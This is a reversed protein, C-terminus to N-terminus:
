TGEPPLLAAIRAILNGMRANCEAVYASGEDSTHRDIASVEFDDRLLRVDEWTFGFPQGHLALAALAHRSTTVPQMESDYVAGDWNVELSNDDKQAVLVGDDWNFLRSGHAEYYRCAEYQTYPKAWEEPTLAPEDPM